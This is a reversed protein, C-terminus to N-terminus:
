PYYEATNYTPVGTEFSPVVYKSNALVMGTPSAWARPRQYGADSTANGDALVVSVMSWNLCGDVSMMVFSAHSTEESIAIWMSGFATLGTMKRNLATSSTGITVATWTLGDDVSRLFRTTGTASDYVSVMFTAGTSTVGWSIDEATETAAFTGLSAATWSTGNTSYMYTPKNAVRQIVVMTADSQASALDALTDLGGSAPITRPTWTTADTSSYAQAGSGNAFISVWVGAFYALVSKKATTGFTQVSTWTSGNGKYIVATNGVLWGNVVYLSPTSPHALVASLQGGSTATMDIYTGLAFWNYGGDPSYLVECDFSAFTRVGALWQKQRQDWAVTQWLERPNGSHSDNGTPIKAPKWNLGPNNAGANLVTNLDATATGFLWNFEEAPPKTNPTFWTGAPLVALPQSNWPNAGGPFNGSLSWKLGIVPRGSM